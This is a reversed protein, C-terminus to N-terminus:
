RYVREERADFDALQSIKQESIDGIIRRQPSARGASLALLVVVTMMNFDTLSESM